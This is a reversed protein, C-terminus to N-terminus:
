PSGAPSRASTITDAPSTKFATGANPAAGKDVGHM